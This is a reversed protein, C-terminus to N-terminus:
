DTRSRTFHRESTSALFSRVLHIKIQAMPLGSRFRTWDLERSTEEVGFQSRVFERWRPNEMKFFRELDPLLSYGPPESAWRAHFPWSICAYVMAESPDKDFQQSNNMLHLCRQLLIGHGTKFDISFREDLCRQRDLLFDRFSPHLLVIKATPVEPVIIISRLNSVTNKTEDQRLGLLIALSDLCLPEQLLVVASLIQRLNQCFKDQWGSSESKRVAHDLVGHYLKDLKRFVETTEISRVKPLLELVESVSGYRGAGRLFLCATSAYVFLGGARSVLAPIVTEDLIAPEQSNKRILDFQEKLFISIDHDVTSRGVDHLVLKRLKLSDMQQLELRPEYEPRSTILIRVRFGTIVDTKYLVDLIAKVNEKEEEEVCECEDLADVVLLLIRDSTEPSPNNGVLPQTILAKWQDRLGLTLIHALNENTEVSSRIAQGLYKPSQRALQRVVTSVFGKADRLDGYDRSFFYSAGLCREKDYFERSITLAITSKGTGAMGELWFIHQEHSGRIWDRIEELIEARTGATCGPHGQRIAANYAARPAFPLKGLTFPDGNNGFHIGGHVNQHIAQNPVNGYNTTHVFGDPPRTTHGEPRAMMFM